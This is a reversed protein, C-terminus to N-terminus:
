WLKACNGSYVLTDSPKVPTAETEVTVILKSVKSLLKESTDTLQSVASGTTPVNGLVFAPGNKAPDAPVAWMVLRGVAPATIPGIVKITMTKGQRLSSALLKGNGQADTLLGVYSQPLKEGTRMAIQDSTIFLTPVTFFLASAALLGATLGGLGFGAPKLWGWLGSAPPMTKSPSAAVASSSSQAAFRQTRAAIAPWLRSSVQQPPISQAMQGLRMEWTAVQMQIDIRDRQLREFRRRAGGQLTGLVYQSALHELLAPDTYRM